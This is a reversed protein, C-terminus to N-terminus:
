EANELERRVQNTESQKTKLRARLDAREQTVRGLADLVEEQVDLVTNVNAMEDDLLDQTDVVHERFIAVAE